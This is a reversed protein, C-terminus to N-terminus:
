TALSGEREQEPRGAQPKGEVPRLQSVRLIQLPEDDISEFGYRTYRPMFIGEMPGLDGYHTDGEGYFRARGALVMWYGDQDNHYHLTTGQGKEMIQVTSIVMHNYLLDYSRGRAPGRDRADPDAPGPYKFRRVEEAM